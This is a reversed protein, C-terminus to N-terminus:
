AVPNQPANTKGKWMSIINDVVTGGGVLATATLLLLGYQDFTIGVAYGGVPPPNKANWLISFIWLPTATFYIWAGLGVKRGDEWLIVSLLNPTLIRKWFETIKEAM